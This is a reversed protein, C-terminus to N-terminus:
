YLEFLPKHGSVLNMVFGAFEGNKFRAIASPFAVLNTRSHAGSHVLANIKPERSLRDNTTYLKVASRGDGLAYVEGEGGRGIRKGLDLLKGNVYVQRLTM